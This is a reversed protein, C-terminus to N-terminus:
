KKIFSMFNLTLPDSSPCFPAKLQIVGTHYNQRTNTERKFRAVTCAHTHIKKVGYRSGADKFIQRLKMEYKFINLIIGILLDAQKALTQQQCREDSLFMGPFGFFQYFIKLPNEGYQIGPITPVYKIGKEKSGIM